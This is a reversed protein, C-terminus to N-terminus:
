DVIDFTATCTGSVWIGHEDDYGWTTGEICAPNPRGRIVYHTLPRGCFTRGSDNSTCRVIPGAYADNRYPHGGSAEDFDGICGGSVWVGRADSGWTAGRSAARVPHVASSM